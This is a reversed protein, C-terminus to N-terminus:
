RNNEENTSHGGPYPDFRGATNFRGALTVGTYVLRLTQCGIRRKVACRDMAPTSRM